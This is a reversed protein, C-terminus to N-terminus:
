EEDTRWRTKTATGCFPKRMERLTFRADEHRNPIAGEKELVGSMSPHAM